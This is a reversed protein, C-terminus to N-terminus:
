DESPSDPVYELIDEIKCDLASCIRALVNFDIRIASGDLLKNLQKRQLFALQGLRTRSIGREQMVELIKIKIHGENM